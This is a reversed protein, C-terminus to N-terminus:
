LHLLLVMNKRHSIFQQLSVKRDQPELSM